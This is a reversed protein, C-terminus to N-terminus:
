KGIASNETSTGSSLEVLTYVLRGLPIGSRADYQGGKRWSWPLAEKGNWEGRVFRDGWTQAKAEKAPLWIFDPHVRTYWEGDLIVGSADIELDYIYQTKYTEGSNNPKAYYLTMSIGVVSKAKPNRLKNFFDYSLPTPETAGELTESSEKTRPNFYSYEYGVVLANWKDPEFTSDIVVPTKGVGVKAVITKHFTGPDFEPCKQNVLRKSGTLDMSEAICRNGVFNRPYQTKSWLLVSLGKIDQPTFTVMIGKPSELTVDKIPEPLKIAASAWGFDLNIWDPVSKTDNLYSQGEQWLASTLTFDSDGMLLDIKEAPSLKSIESKSNNILIKQAPNNLSYTHQEEWKADLPWSKDQPRFALTGKDLSRASDVWYKSKAIHSEELNQKQFDKLAIATGKSTAILNPTSQELPIQEPPVPCPIEGGCIIKEFRWQDNTEYYNEISDVKLPSILNGKTTFIQPKLLYAKIPNEEYIGLFINTRKLSDAPTLWKTELEKPSPTTCSIASFLIVGIQLFWFMSNTFINKM